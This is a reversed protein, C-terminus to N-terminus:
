DLRLAASSCADDDELPPAPGQGHAERRAADLWTATGNNTKTWTEDIFVM